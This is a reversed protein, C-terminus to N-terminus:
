MAMLFGCTLFSHSFIRWPKRACIASLAILSWEKQLHKQNQPNIPIKSIVRVFIKPLYLFTSAETTYAHKSGV